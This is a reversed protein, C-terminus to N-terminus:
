SADYSMFGHFIKTDAGLITDVGGGPLTLNEHFKALQIQPDTFELTCLTKEIDVPLTFIHCM